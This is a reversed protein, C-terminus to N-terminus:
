PLSRIPPIAAKIDRELASVDHSTEANAKALRDLRAQLESNSEPAQTTLEPPLWRRVQAGRQATRPQTFTKSVPAAAHIAGSGGGDTSSPSKRALLSTPIPGAAPRLRPGSVPPPSSLASHAGPAVTVRHAGEHRLVAPEAGAPKVGDERSM